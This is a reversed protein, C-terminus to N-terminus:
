PTITVEWVEDLADPARSLQASLHRGPLTFEFTPRDTPSRGPVAKGWAKEMDALVARRATEDSYCQRLVVRDVHDAKVHMDISTAVKCAETAALLLELRNGDDSVELRPGLAKVVDDRSAGLLPPLSLGDPSKGLVSAFPKYPEVSLALQKTPHDDVADARIGADRDFWSEHDDPAGWADRLVARATAPLYYTIVDLQDAHDFTVVAAVDAVGTPTVLAPGDPRAAALKASVDHRSAGPALAALDGFAHPKAGLVAKDLPVGPAHDLKGIPRDALERMQDDLAPDNSAVHHTPAPPDASGRCAALVLLWRKV